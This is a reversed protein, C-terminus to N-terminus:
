QETIAKAQLRKEAPVTLGHEDEAAAAVSDAVHRSAPAVLGRAADVNLQGVLDAAREGLLRNV